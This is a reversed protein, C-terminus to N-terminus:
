PLHVIKPNSGILHRYEYLSGRKAPREPPRRCFFMPIRRVLAPINITRSLLLRQNPPPFNLSTYPIPLVTIELLKYFRKMLVGVASLEKNHKSRDRNHSYFVPCGLESLRQLYALVQDTTMEQFSVMNIGLDIKALEVNRFQYHPLLVFDYKLLDTKLISLPGDGYIFFRADPFATKLYTGSFLFTQPLDIVVYTLNPMIKKLQYAFGGWGAGIEVAVSRGSGPPDRLYDLLGGQDMAILSEYFKLTDINVKVGNIDHGFGGLLSSEPVFLNKHDLRRLANLKNLFAGAQHSHHRRYEYSRLGTIHYCHERLKQIIIPSADLMYDFGALEESWYRSPLHEQNSAERMMSLVRERVVLYNQYAAESRASEIYANIEEM